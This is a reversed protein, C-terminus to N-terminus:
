RDEIDGVKETGEDPPEPPEFLALLLSGVRGDRLEDWTADVRTALTAVALVLLRSGLGADSLGGLAVAALTNVFVAVFAITGLVRLPASRVTEAGAQAARSLGLREDATAVAGVVRDLVALIPSITWTERLDIVVVDPDPEKTLWRYLWSDRGWRDLTRGVAGARSTAIARALLREGDGLFQRIRSENAAADLREAVATSTRAVVSTSRAREWDTM